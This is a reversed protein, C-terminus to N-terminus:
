KYNIDNETITLVFLIAVILSVISLILTNIHLGYMSMVLTSSVDPTLIYPIFIFISMLGVFVGERRTPLHFSVIAYPVSMMVAILVGFFLLLVVFILGSGTIYYLFFLLATLLIHILLNGVVRSKEWFIIIMPTYAFAVVMMILYGNTVGDWGTNFSLYYSLYRDQNIIGEINAMFMFMAFWVFLMIINMKKMVMPMNMIDYILETFRTLTINKKGIMINIKHAVMLFISFLLMIFPIVYSEVSFSNVGFILLVIATVSLWMAGQRMYSIKGNDVLDKEKDFVFPVYDQVNSDGLNSYERLFSLGLLATVLMLISAIVMATPSFLSIEDGIVFLEKKLWIRVLIACLIAGLQLMALVGYGAIREREPTIDSVLARYSVFLSNVAVLSIGAMVLIFIPNRIFALAFLAISGIIGMVLITGGRRGYRGWIHDGIFGIVPQTVIGILPIMIWLYTQLIDKSLFDGVYLPTSIAIIMIVFQVGFIGLNYLAVRWLPIAPKAVTSM